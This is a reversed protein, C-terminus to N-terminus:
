GTRNRLLGKSTRSGEDESQDIEALDESAPETEPEMAPADGRLARLLDANRRMTEEPADGAVDLMEDYRGQLGLVLALNQRVNTNAGEMGAAKRLQAEAGELDGSLALSLGFNSLTAVRNPQIELAQRYAVQATVHDGLRDNALGLSALIGADEPAIVAAAQLARRAGQFDRLASLSRAKQRKVEVSLPHIVETETMLQVIREHSGIGALAAGFNLVTDLDEPTKAYELAWFNARELPPMRNGIEREEASAPVFLPDVEATLESSADLDPSGDTACGALALAAFAALSLNRTRVSSM